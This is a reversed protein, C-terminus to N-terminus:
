FNHEHKKLKACVSQQGGHVLFHEYSLIKIDVFFILISRDNLTRETTTTTIVIMMMTTTTFTCQSKSQTENKMIM